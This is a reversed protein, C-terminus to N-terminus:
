HAVRLHKLDVQNFGVDRWIEHDGIAIGGFHTDVNEYGIPIRVGTTEYVMWYTSWSVKYTTWALGTILLLGAFTLGCGWAFLRKLTM